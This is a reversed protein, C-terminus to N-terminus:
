QQYVGAGFVVHDARQEFAPRRHHFSAASDYRALARGLSTTMRATTIKRRCAAGSNFLKVVLKTQIAINSRDSLAEPRKMRNSANANANKNSAMWRSSLM